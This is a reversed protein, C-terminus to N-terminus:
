NNSLGIEASNDVQGAKKSGANALASILDQLHGNAQGGGHVNSFYLVPMLIPM